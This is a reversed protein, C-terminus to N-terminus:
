SLADSVLEWWVDNASCQKKHMNLNWGYNKLWIEFDNLPFLKNKIIPSWDYIRGERTFNNSNFFGYKCLTICIRTRTLGKVHNVKYESNSSYWYADEIARSARFQAVILLRVSKEDDTLCGELFDFPQVDSHFFDYANIIQPESFGRKSKAFNNASIIEANQPSVKKSM